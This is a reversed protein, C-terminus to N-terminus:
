GTLRGAPNLDRVWSRFIGKGRGLRTAVDARGPLLAAGGVRARRVHDRHRCPYGARRLARVRRRARRRQRGARHRRPLARRFKRRLARLFEREAFYDNLRGTVYPGAGLGILNVIFIFLATATARMRPGVLNHMVGLTPGLYVYHLLMPVVLCAVALQPSERTYALVYGPGALLVSFGPILAYWCLARRGAWDSAVGGLVTGAAAAAGGILGFILGVQTYSLGFARHFYPQTFTGTGYAVFGILTAGVLMHVFSANGFLQRVVDGLPPARPPPTRACDDALGRQPEKVVMKFVVALAVGPLGVILFAQRWGLEDAIWGGAMAGFMTGLPIGLSYISLATARSRAAYLDTILSHAPPSCGAEGIGVGMRYLFLQTYNAAAGCLATMGSWLALCVAILNVRSVREALRALPIGFTTFFIAFALGQLLGLQADTIQLDVKIAQGLTTVIMRDIFNFTYVLVLLGLITSRYTGKFEPTPAVQWAYVAPAPRRSLSGTQSKYDGVAVTVSHTCRKMACAAIARREAGKPKEGGFAPQQLALRGDRDAATLEVNEDCEDFARSLDDRLALEKRPDPRIHHDFLAAKADM